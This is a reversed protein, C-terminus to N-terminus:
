FQAIFSCACLGRREICTCDAPPLPPEELAERLTFLEHDLERCARCDRSDLAADIQVRKPKFSKLHRLWMLQQQALAPRPDKGEYHLLKAQSAYIYSLQDFDGTRAFRQLLQQHVTWAVDHWTAPVGFKETLQTRVTEYTARTVKPAGYGVLRDFVMSAFAEEETLLAKKFLTRNRNVRIAGGCRSCKGSRKPVNDIPQSCHPCTPKM